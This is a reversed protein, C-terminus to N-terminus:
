LTGWTSSMIFLSHPNLVTLFFVFTIPISLIISDIVMEQSEVFEFIGIFFLAVAVTIALIGFIKKGRLNRLIEYRFVIFLQLTKSPLQIDSLSM